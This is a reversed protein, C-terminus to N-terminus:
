TVGVHNRIIVSVLCILIYLRCYTYVDVALCKCGDKLVRAYTHPSLIAVM